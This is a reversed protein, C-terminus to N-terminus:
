RFGYFLIFESIMGPGIGLINLARNFSMQSLAAITPLRHAEKSIMMPLKRCLIRKGKAPVMSANELTPSTMAKTCTQFPLPRTHLAPRIAAKNFDIDGEAMISPGMIPM